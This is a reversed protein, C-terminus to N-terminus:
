LIARIVALVIGVLILGGMLLIFAWLISDIAPNGLLPYAAALQGLFGSFGTVSGVRVTIENEVTEGTATIATVNYIGAKDFTYRAPDKVFTAVKEGNIYLEGGEAIVKGNQLIAFEVEAGVPLVVDGFQWNKFWEDVADWAWLLGYGMGGGIIAGPIAGVGGFLAGLIAGIGAGIGVSGITNENSQEPVKILKWGILYSNPDVVEIYAIDTLSNYEAKLTYSGPEAFNYVLGASFFASQTKGILEGNLFISAGALETAHENVVSIKHKDVWIKQGDAKSGDIRLEIRTTKVDEGGDDNVDGAPRLYIEIETDSSFQRDELIRNQYKGSPDTVHISYSVGSEATLTARGDSKTIKQEVVSGDKILAVIAGSVPLNTNRDLVKVTVAISGGDRDFEDTDSYVYVTGTGTRIIGSSTIIEAYVKHLGINNFAYTLEPKAEGIAKNNVFITSKVGEKIAGCVKVTKFTVEGGVKVSQPSYLLTYYCDKEDPETRPYKGEDAGGRHSYTENLITVTAAQSIESGIRAYVYHTGPEHLQIVAQPIGPSILKRFFDFFGWDDFYRTKVGTFAGDVYIEAGEIWEPDFPNWWAKKTNKVKVTIPEYVKATYKDLIVVYKSDPNGYTQKEDQEEERDETLYIVYPSTVFGSYIVEEGREDSRTITVYLLKNLGAQIVAVGESDTILAYEAGKGMKTYIVAPNTQAIGGIFDVTTNMTNGFDDRVPNLSLDLVEFTYQLNEDWYPNSDLGTIDIRGQSDTVSSTIYSYGLLSTVRIKANQLPKGNKYVYLTINGYGSIHESVSPASYPVYEVAKVRLGQKNTYVAIGNPVVSLYSLQGGTSISARIRLPYDSDELVYYYGTIDSGNSLTKLVTGDSKILEVTIYSGSFYVIAGRQLDRKSMHIEVYPNPLAAYGYVVRNFHETNTGITGAYTCRYIISSTVYHNLYITLPWELAKPIIFSALTEGEGTTVTVHCGPDGPCEQMLTLRTVYNGKGSYIFDHYSRATSSYLVTEVDSLGPIIKGRYVTVNNKVDARDLNEADIWRYAFATQATLLLALCFFLFFRKM